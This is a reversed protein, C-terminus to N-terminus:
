FLFYFLPTSPGPSRSRPSSGRVRVVAAGELLLWCAVCVCWVVRKVPHVRPNRIRARINDAEGARWWKCGEPACRKRKVGQALPQPPQSSADGVCTAGRERRGSLANMFKIINFKFINGEKRHHLPERATRKSGKPRRRRNRHYFSRPSSGPARPKQGPAACM